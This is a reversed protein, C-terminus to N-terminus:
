SEKLLFLKLNSMPALKRASTGDRHPVVFNVATQTGDGALVKMGYMMQNHNQLESFPTWGYGAGFGRLTHPGIYNL